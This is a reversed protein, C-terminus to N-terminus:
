ILNNLLFEEDSNTYRKGIRGLYKLKDFKKEIFGNLANDSNEESNFSSRKGVIGYFKMKDFKKSNSNIQRKEFENSDLEILYERKGINGYYKLKDLRNKKFKPM